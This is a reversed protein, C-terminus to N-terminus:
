LALEKFAKFVMHVSVGNLCKPDECNAADTEFCATCDVAGRLVRTARGVPSWRKPSAPGFIAVTPVGMFASLHTVGSDNGIFIKTQRLLQMLSIPDSIEYVRLGQNSRSKVVPALDSEAPGLLFVVEGLNKESIIEATRVFNRLPWRKRASGAGPHIVALYERHPLSGDPGSPISMANSPFPCCIDSKTLLGKEQLQRLVHWAVHIEEDVPPRPSIRHVGGEHNRRLHHEITDSFSIVIIIDYGSVFTKVAPTMEGSFLTSFRASELSYRADVINLEHAIAGLADSCLLTASAKTERKLSLLAPFSLVLDGLAGQHIVLIRKKM